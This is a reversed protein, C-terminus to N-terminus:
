DHAKVWLLGGGSYIQEPIHRLSPRLKDKSLETVLPPNKGLLHHPVAYMLWHAVDSGTFLDSAWGLNSDHSWEFFWGVLLKARQM